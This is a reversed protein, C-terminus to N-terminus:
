RPVVRLTLSGDPHKESQLNHDPNVRDAEEPTLTVPGTHLLVATLVSTVQKNDQLLKIQDIFDM